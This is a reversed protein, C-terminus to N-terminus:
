GLKNPGLTQSRKDIADAFLVADQWGALADSLDRLVALREGLTLHIYPDTKRMAKKLEQLRRAPKTAATHLLMAQRQKTAERRRTARDMAEFDPVKEQEAYRRTMWGTHIEAAQLDYRTKTAAIADDKPLWQNAPIALALLVFHSTNGSLEPTGSEDLYCLHVVLLRSTSTPQTQPRAWLGSLLRM